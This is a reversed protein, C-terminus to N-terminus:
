LGLGNSSVGLKINSNFISNWSDREAQFEGRLEKKIIAKKEREILYDIDMELPEPNNQVYTMNTGSYRGNIIIKVSYIFKVNLGIGSPTVSDEVMINVSDNYFYNNGEKLKTVM